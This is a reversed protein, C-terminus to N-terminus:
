VRLKMQSLPYVMNAIRRKVIKSLLYHVIDLFWYDRSIRDKGRFGKEGM